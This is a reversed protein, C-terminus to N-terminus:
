SKLFKTDLFYDLWIAAICATSIFLLAVNSYAFFEFTTTFGVYIIAWTVAAGFLLSGLIVIWRKIQMAHSEGILITRVPAITNFKV